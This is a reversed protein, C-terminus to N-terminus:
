LKILNYLDTRFNSGSFYNEPYTGRLLGTNGNPINLFIIKLDLFLYILIIKLFFSKMFM